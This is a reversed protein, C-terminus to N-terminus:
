YIQVFNNCGANANACVSTNGMADAAANRVDQDGQRDCSLRNLLDYIFDLNVNVCAQLQDVTVNCADLNSVCAGSNGLNVNISASSPRDTCTKLINKCGAEDTSGVLAIPLCLAYVVEDFGINADVHAEYSQCIQQKDQTSLSSVPASKDQVPAVYATRKQDDNGCAALSFGLPAVLFLAQLRTKM